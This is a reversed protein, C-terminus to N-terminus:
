TLLANNPVHQQCFISAMLKCAQSLLTCIPMGKFARDLIWRESPKQALASDQATQTSSYGVSYLQPCELSNESAHIHLVIAQEQSVARPRPQPHMSLPCRTRYFCPCPKNGMLCFTKKFDSAQPKGQQHYPLQKVTVCISPFSKSFGRFIRAFTQVERQSQETSKRCHRICSAKSRAQTCEKAQIDRWLAAM